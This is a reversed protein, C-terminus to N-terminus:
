ESASGGGERCQPYASVYVFRHYANGVHLDDADVVALETDDGSEDVGHPSAEEIAM